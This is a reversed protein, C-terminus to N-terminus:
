KEELILATGRTLGVFRLAGNEVTMTAGSLADTLRAGDRTGGHWVPVIAEDLTEPGRYAAVILRQQASERQYVILGGEAYLQQFGGDVLAPATKRLAILQQYHARMDKDWQADDWIMTMRNMPDHAGDMGIEDGYYINPVGPYTMLLAVGLKVLAKDGKCHHLIRATDHSGILNFQQRAIVWPVSARYRTWQEALAESPYLVPDAHQAAPHWSTGQDSGALWRWVPITFGQYNMTADLENGQLHPSADYWHEGLIYTQPNDSKVARRLERGMKNGLQVEGQRAQMNAVDLRWGDIRYPEQLWRRLVSDTKRYVADRLKQSRYNLKVLSRIGLWAEYNDPHQHFTFYEATPANADAQAETFWPHHNGCHNLTVDLMLRMQAADTASRLEALAENGGLYPDVNDFDKIDYRHNSESVFIPTLYIANVGLDTLYDLRQTIGNLDGGYFDRNRGERWHMLPAGWPRRQTGVGDRGWLGEPTDNSPDGNEFRDPFIQYFVTSALWEPAAYNALLKFDYHDPSDSRSAGLGTFFYAGEDSLLKFRYPNNPMSAPMKAAFYAWHDDREVIEMKEMHNEGDPATRLFASRIPANAPTRLRITVVEGLKPLPNSVYLASGDHHLGATWHLTATM